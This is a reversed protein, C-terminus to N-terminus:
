APSLANGKLARHNENEDLDICYTKIHKVHHLPLLPTSTPYSVRRLGLSVCRKTPRGAGRVDTEESRFKRLRYSILKLGNHYGKAVIFIFKPPQVHPPLRTSNLPACSVRCLQTRSSMCACGMHLAQRVLLKEEITWHRTGLVICPIWYIIM